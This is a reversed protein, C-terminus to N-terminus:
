KDTDKQTTTHQAAESLAQAIAALLEAAARRAHHDDPALRDILYRQLREPLPAPAPATDTDTHM